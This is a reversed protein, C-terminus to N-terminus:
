GHRAAMNSCTSLGILSYAACNGLLGRLLPVVRIWGIWNWGVDPIRDSNRLRDALIQTFLFNECQQLAVRLALQHEARDSRL